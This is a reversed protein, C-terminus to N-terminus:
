EYSLLENKMLANVDSLLRYKIGDLGLLAREPDIYEWRRTEEDRVECIWHPTLKGPVIYAAYGCRLRVAKGKIRLISAFLM